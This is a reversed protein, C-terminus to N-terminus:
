GVFALVVASVLALAALVSGAVAAGGARGGDRAVLACALAGVALPVTVGAWFVAVSLAALVGLVLARRGGSDATATRVVLGFVLATAVASLVLVFLFDGWSHDGEGGFSGLANLVAAVALAVAALLPTRSPATSRTDPAAHADTTMADGLDRAADTAASGPM